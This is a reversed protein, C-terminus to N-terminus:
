STRRRPHLEARGSPWSTNLARAFFRALRELYARHYRASMSQHKLHAGLVRVHLAGLMASVAAEVDGDEVAGVPYQGSLWRGLRTAHEAPGAGLAKSVVAQPIGSERLAMVCPVTESFDEWMASFLELLRGELGPGSREVAPLAEVWGPVAPPKLAEVMLTQRSGFRKLLAPSTVGLEEAVLDLSVFPGHARVSQRMTRLIQEDTVVRPRPM